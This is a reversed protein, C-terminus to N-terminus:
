YIENGDDNFSWYDVKDVCINRLDDKLIEYM